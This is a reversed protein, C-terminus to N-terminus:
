LSLDVIRTGVREEMNFKILEMNIKLIKEMNVKLLEMNIKLIKEINVQLFNM